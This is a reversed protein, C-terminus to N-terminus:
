FLIILLTWSAWSTSPGETRYAEYAVIPLLFFAFILPSNKWLGLVLGVIALLTLILCIPTAYKTPEPM